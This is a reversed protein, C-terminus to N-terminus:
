YKWSKKREEYLFLAQAYHMRSYQARHATIQYLVNWHLTNRVTTHYLANYHLPM